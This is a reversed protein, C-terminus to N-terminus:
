KYNQPYSKCKQYDKKYDDGKLGKAKVQGRCIQNVQHRYQAFSPQTDVITGMAIMAPLGATVTKRYIRQKVM